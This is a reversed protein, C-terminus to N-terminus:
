ELRESRRALVEPLAARVRPDIAAQKPPVERPGTYHAGLQAPKVPDRGRAFLTGLISPGIESWDFTRHRSWPRSTPSELPLAAGDDFREGNFWAAAEFGVHGGSAMVQFLEGALEPFREPAPHAHRLMRTFM